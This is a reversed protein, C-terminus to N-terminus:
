FIRVRPRIKLRFAEARWKLLGASVAKIEATFMGGTARSCDAAEEVVSMGAAAAINSGAFEGFQAPLAACALFASEEELREANMRAELLKGLRGELASVRQAVTPPNSDLDGGKEWRHTWVRVLGSWDAAIIKGGAYSAQMAIDNLPEFPEDSQRGAADWVRVLHDGGAPSM